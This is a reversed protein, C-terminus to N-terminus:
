SKLVIKEFSKLLSTAEPTEKVGKLLNEEMDKHFKKTKNVEKIYSSM